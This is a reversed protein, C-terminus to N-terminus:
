LRMFVRRTEEFEKFSLYLEEKVTHNYETIMPQLSFVTESIILNINTLSIELEMEGADIKSIDMLDNILNMLSNGSQFIISLYKKRSDTDFNDDDLVLKSFGIVSSLPTRLEHSINALFESKLRNYKNLEINTDEAKKKSNYLDEMMNLLALKIKSLELVTKEM